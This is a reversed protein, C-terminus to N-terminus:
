LIQSRLLSQYWQWKCGQFYATGGVEKAVAETQKEPNDKDLQSARFGSQRSQWERSGHDQPFCEQGETAEIQEDSFHRVTYVTGTEIFILQM